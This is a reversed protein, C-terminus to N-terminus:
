SKPWGNKHIHRALAITGGDFPNLCDQCGAGSEIFGSGDCASCDKDHVDQCDPCVCDVTGDGECEPCEAESQGHTCREIVAVCEGVLGLFQVAAIQTSDGFRLPPTLAKQAETITM